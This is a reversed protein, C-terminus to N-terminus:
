KLVLACSQDASSNDAAGKGLAVIVRGDPAVAADVAVADSVLVRGRDGFALDLRGDVSSFRAVVATEPGTRTGSGSVPYTYGVAYLRGGPAFVLRTIQSRAATGAPFVSASFLSAASAVSGDAHLRVLRAPPYRTALLIDGGPAIEIADVYGGDISIVGDGDFTSDPQGDTRFRAVTAFPGSTNTGVVIKGDPQLAIASGYSLTGPAEVATWGSGNFSPDLAAGPDFRAVLTRYDPFAGWDGTAVLKGDPAITMAEVGGGTVGTTTAVGDVGFGPDAAGNVGFRWFALGRDGMNGGVVVKGDAQVALDRASGTWTVIGDVDFASDIGGAAAFRALSPFMLNSEVRGLMLIRGDAQVAVRSPYDRVLPVDFCSIGSGAFTPDPAGSSTGPANSWVRLVGRYRITEWARTSAAGKVMLVYSGAPLSPADTARGAYCGGWDAVDPLTRCAADFLVLELRDADPGTAFADAIGPATTTFAYFDARTEDGLLYDGFALTGVFAVDEGDFAVPTLAPAVSPRTGDCVYESAAIEAPELVGDRDSDVGAEILIGGSGCHAGPLEPTVRVLSAEGPAGNCVYESADIEAPDLQGNRNDDVGMDVRTGGNACQAGAAVTVAAYAISPAGPATTAPPSTSACALSLACLGVAFMGSCRM